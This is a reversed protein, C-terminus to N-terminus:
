KLTLLNAWTLSVAIFCQEQVQIFSQNVSARDRFVRLVYDFSCSGVSRFYQNPEINTWVAKFEEFFEGLEIFDDYERGWHRIIGVRDDIEKVRIVLVDTFHQRSRTANSAFIPKENLIESDYLIPFQLIHHYNIIQRMGKPELDIVTNRNQFEQVISLISLQLM